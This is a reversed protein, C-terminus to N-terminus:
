KGWEEDEELGEDGELVEEYNFDYKACDTCLKREDDGLTYHM